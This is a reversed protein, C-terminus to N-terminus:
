GRLRAWEAAMCAVAVALLVALANGGQGHWLGAGYATAVALVVGLVRWGPNGTM